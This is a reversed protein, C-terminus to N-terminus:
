RLAITRMAKKFVESEAAHTKQSRGSVSLM